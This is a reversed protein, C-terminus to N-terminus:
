HKITLILTVFFLPFMKKDIVLGTNIVFCCKKTFNIVQKGIDFDRRWQYQYERELCHHWCSVSNGIGFLCRLVYYHRLKHEVIMRM